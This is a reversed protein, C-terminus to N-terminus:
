MILPSNMTQYYRKFNSICSLFWTLFVSRYCVVSKIDDTLWRDSVDVEMSRLQCSRLYFLRARDWLRIVASFFPVPYESVHLYLWIMIYNSVNENRQLFFHFARSRFWFFTEDFAWVYWLVLSTVDIIRICGSVRSCTFLTVKYVICLKIEKYFFGLGNSNKM